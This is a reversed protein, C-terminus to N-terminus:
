STAPLRSAQQGCMTSGCARRALGRQPQGPWCSVESQLGAVKAEAVLFSHPASFTNDPHNATHGPQGPHMREWSDVASPTLHALLAVELSEPPSNLDGALIVGAGGQVHKM